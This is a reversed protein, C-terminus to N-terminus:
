HVESRRGKAVFIAITEEIERNSLGPNPMLTGPVFEAPNRLFTALSKEDWNGKKAQLAPSYRSFNDSAIPRGIINVLSPALHTPNTESFHHCAVCKALAPTLEINQRMKTNEKLREADVRIFVLAPDDTMLVIEQPMQAIDRIRHGVWIPESFIIRDEVFMLRFLTQAKLSGVLLNGDWREHFDAVQIIPSIAASPVWAYLPESFDIKPEAKVPWTFTGYNTGYTRYPWGYNGGERIINLEDGGEPGHEASILRGQRTYVLGQPNRHGLSIAHTRGSALEYEYVKGLSSGRDQASFDFKTAPVQGFNYDGITFYLFRGAVVLKGGAGGMFSADFPINESEFVTQWDGTRKFTKPDMKIRSVCFRVHQSQPSYRQLSVYLTYSAADYALYLARTANIPLPSNTNKISEAAGNPFLGLDIPQLEGQDYVFVAGLRDMVLLSNEVRVLAGGGIEESAAFQGTRTLPARSLLLPLRSSDLARKAPVPSGPDKRHHGALVERVFGNGGMIAIKAQKKASNAAKILWPIPFVDYRTLLIGATFFGLALLVPTVIPQLKRAQRSFIM